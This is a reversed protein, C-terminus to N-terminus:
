VMNMSKDAAPKLTFPLCWTHQLHTRCCSAYWLTMFRAAGLLVCGAFASNHQHVKCYQCFRSRASSLCWAVNSVSGAPSVHGVETDCAFCLGKYKTLLLDVVRRAGSLNDIVCIDHPVAPTSAISSAQAAESVDLDQVACTCAQSHLQFQGLMASTLLNSQSYMVALLMCLGNM